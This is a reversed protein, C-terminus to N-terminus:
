HFCPICCNCVTLFFWHSPVIFNCLSWSDYHAQALGKAKKHNMNKLVNMFIGLIVKCAEQFHLYLISHLFKPVNLNTYKGLLSHQIFLSSMCTIFSRKDLFLALLSEKFPLYDVMTLHFCGYAIHFRSPM